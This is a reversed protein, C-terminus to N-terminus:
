GPSADATDTKPLLELAAIVIATETEDDDGAEILQHAHVRTSALADGLVPAIRAAHATSTQLALRTVGRGVGAGRETKAKNIATLVDIALQLSAPDDPPAIAALEATTPWPARHITPQGREEAFAWSWVEETVFPVIPAFLRLMVDLGLRLTAVM